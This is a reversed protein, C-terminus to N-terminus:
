FFPKLDIQKEDKDKLCEENKNMNMNNNNKFFPNM